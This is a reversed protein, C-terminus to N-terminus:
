TTLDSMESHQKEHQWIVHSDIQHLEQVLKKPKIKQIRAQLKAPM